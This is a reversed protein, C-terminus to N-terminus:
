RPFLFPALVHRTLLALVSCITQVTLMLRALQDERQPGKWVLLLNLLTFNNTTVRDITTTTIAANSLITPVVGNKIEKDDGVERSYVHLLGLRTLGEVIWRNKANLTFNVKSPELVGGYHKENLQQQNNEDKSLGSSRGDKDSVLNEEPGDFRVNPLRHRPCPILGFLQPTSYLFNGIQPLFFLLLTKGFHGLIGVVGFTMGAFYCFTDGVFIRAPFWNHALLALSVTLFPLMLTLSFIHENQGGDDSPSMLSIVNHLIVSFAIVVSQGVEVGNVGALINISHTCFITLLSMYAYYALGLDILGRNLWDSWPWPVVVVTRGSTVAYIMLLPLSSLAPILTKHRWKLNLVDDAFGLFLMCTISLLAATYAGLLEFPFSIKPSFNSPHPWWWSLFPVPLFLFMSLLYVTGGAVGLSEPIIPQSQKLLDRGTRGAHALLRGFEPISEYAVLGAGLAFAAAVVILNRSTLAALIPLSLVLLWQLRRRFSTTFIDELSVSPRKIRFHRYSSSSSFLPRIDSKKDSAM